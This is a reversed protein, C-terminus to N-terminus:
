EEVLRELEAEVDAEDRDTLSSGIADSVEKQYAIADATDQMLADVKEVSTEANLRKLVENGQALSDLFKKEVEKYQITDVVTSAMKELMFLQEDTRQILTEQYKKKRLALMARRRDGKALCTKAVQTEKEFVNELQKKYDKLKDRQKKLEWMAEDVKSIKATPRPKSSDNGM